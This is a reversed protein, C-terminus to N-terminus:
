SLALFRAVCAKSPTRGLPYCHRSRVWDEHGQCRQFERVRDIVTRLSGQVPAIIRGQKRDSIGASQIATAAALPRAATLNMVKLAQERLESKTLARELSAVQEQEQADSCQYFYQTSGMLEAQLSEWQERVEALLGKPLLYREDQYKLRGNRRHM